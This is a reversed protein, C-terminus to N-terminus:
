SLEATGNKGNREINIKQIFEKAEDYKSNIKLINNFDNIALDYEKIEYYIIGRKHYLRVLSVNISEINIININSKNLNLAENYKSIVQNDIDIAMGFDDIALHPEKKIYYALGRLEYVISQTPVIDILKTLHEITKNYNKNEILNKAIGCVGQVAFLLFFPIEVYNQTPNESIGFLSCSKLKDALSCINQEQDFNLLSPNIKLAVNFDSLAKEKKGNRDYARGRGYYLESLGSNLINREEETFNDIKIKNFKGTNIPHIRIAETFDNIALKFENNEYRVLGRFKYALFHNPNIKIAQSLNIKAKNYDRKKLLTYGASYFGISAIDKGYAGSRLDPVSAPLGPEKLFQLNVQFVDQEKNINKESFRKVYDEELDKFYYICPFGEFEVM